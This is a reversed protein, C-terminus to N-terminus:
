APNLNYCKIADEYQRKAELGVCLNAKVHEDTPKLSQARKLAVLAQDVEGYKLMAAGALTPDETTLIKKAM